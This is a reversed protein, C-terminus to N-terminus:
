MLSVNIRFTLLDKWACALEDRVGLVTEFVMGFDSNYIDIQVTITKNRETRGGGFDLNNGIPPSQDTKEARGVRALANLGLGKTAAL